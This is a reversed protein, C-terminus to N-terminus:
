GFGRRGKIGKPWYQLSNRGFDKEIQAPERLFIKIDFGLLHQVDNQLLRVGNLRKKRSNNAKVNSEKKIVKRFQLNHLHTARRSEELGNTLIPEM